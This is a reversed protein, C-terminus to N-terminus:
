LVGQDRVHQLSRAVLGALEEFLPEEVTKFNFCSKGQMHKKLQPSIGELLQPYMYVPMFHFSVYNKNIQVAGLFLEKKWKESYPTNLSYGRPGDAAVVANPIHLLITKLRNFIPEFEPMNEENRRPSSTGQLEVRWFLGQEEPYIFGV